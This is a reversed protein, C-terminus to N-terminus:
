IEVMTDTWDYMRKKQWYFSLAATIRLYESIVM